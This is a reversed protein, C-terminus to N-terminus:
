PTRFWNCLLEFTPKKTMFPQLLNKCSDLNGSLEIGTLLSGHVLSTRTRARTVQKRGVAWQM